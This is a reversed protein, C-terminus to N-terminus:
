ALSLGKEWETKLVHGFQRVEDDIVILTFDQQSGSFHLRYTNEEKFKTWGLAYLHNEFSEYLENLKFNNLEELPFNSTVEVYNRITLNTWGFDLEYDIKNEKYYKFNLRCGEYDGTICKLFSFEVYTGNEQKDRLTAM